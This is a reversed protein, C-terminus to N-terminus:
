SFDNEASSEFSVLKLISLIKIQVRKNAFEFACEVCQERDVVQLSISSQSVSVNTGCVLVRKCRCKPRAQKSILHFFSSAILEVLFM